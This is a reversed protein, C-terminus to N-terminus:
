DQKSIPAKKLLIKLAGYVEGAGYSIHMLFFSAPMLLSSTLHNTNKYIQISALISLLIYLSMVFIYIYLFFVNYSSLILGFINGLFFISPILHRFSLTYPYKFWMYSNYPGDKLLLKALFKFFFRQNFYKATIEPNIWVKGGNKIIRKNYEYDQARVLEEDFFGNIQIAKKSFFGFPVTDTKGEKMGTRFGSGGVGFWNSSINQVIKAGIGRGGPLTELVGGVNESNTRIATDLCKELYNSPYICHADLRMLFDSNFNKIILNMAAPQIKRPNDLLIYNKNNHIFNKVLSVTNDNSGGDVIHTTLQVNNPKNFSKVSELCPLIYEEEDLVPIVISVKM